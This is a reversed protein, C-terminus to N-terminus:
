WYLESMAGWLSQLGRCFLFCFLSPRYNLDKIRYVWSKEIQSDITVAAISGESYSMFEIFRIGYFLIVCFACILFSSFIYSFLMLWLWIISFYGSISIPCYSTGRLLSSRPRSIRVTRLIIHIRLILWAFGFISQLEPLKQLIVQLRFSFPTNKMRVPHPLTLCGASHSHWLYAYIKRVVSAM